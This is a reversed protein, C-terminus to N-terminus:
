AFRSLTVNLRRQQCDSKRWQVLLPSQYRGSVIQGSAGGQDTVLLSVSRKMRLYHGAPVAFFKNIVREVFSESLSTKDLFKNVIQVLDYKAYDKAKGPIARPDRLMGLGKEAMFKMPDHLVDALDHTMLLTEDENVTLGAHCEEDALAVEIRGKRLDHRAVLDHLEEFFSLSADRLNVSDIPHGSVPVTLQARAVTEERDFGLVTARRRRRRSGNVGNPNFGDLDILYVPADPANVYTVCHELGSGIFTLHSDANRPEVRRQEESLETRLHLQDHRYDAGPPFLQQFPELFAHVSDRSYGLRECLRQELFGATTHYSCYLAKQHPALVDGFQEQLHANVDIIDLRQRPHLELTVESTSTM